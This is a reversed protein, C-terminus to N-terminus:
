KVSIVSEVFAFFADGSDDMPKLQTYTLYITETKKSIWGKYEVSYFGNSYAPYYKLVYGDLQETLPNATKDFNYNYNRNVVYDLKLNETFYKIEANYYLNHGTDTDYHLKFTGTANEMLSIQFYKADKNLEEVTAARLDMKEDFYKLPAKRPVFIISLTIVAAVLVCAACSFFVRFKRSYVVARRKIGNELVLKECYEKDEETLVSAIEEEAKQRLYKELDM